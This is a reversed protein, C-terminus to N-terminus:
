HGDVPSAEDFPSMLQFYNGDPDALTAIWARFATGSRGARDVGRACRVGDGLAVFTRDAICIGCTRARPAEAGGLTAAHLDRM